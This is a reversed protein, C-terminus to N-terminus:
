KVKEDEECKLMAADWLSVEEESEGSESNEKGLLEEDSFEVGVVPDIVSSLTM